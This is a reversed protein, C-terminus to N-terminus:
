ATADRAEGDARAPRAIAPAGLRAAAYATALITAATGGVVAGAIPLAEASMRDLHGVVGVGAPVFLMGLFQLLRDSAAGLESSLQGELTVQAYLFLLGIVPGPVPVLDLRSLIEGACLWGMLKTLASLMSIM